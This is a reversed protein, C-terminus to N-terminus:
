ASPVFGEFLLADGDDRAPDVPRPPSPQFSMKKETFEKEFHCTDLKDALDPRWPASLEGRLLKEWHIGNFFAHSKVDEGDASGSGLRRSPNKTLLGEILYQADLSVDGSYVVHGHRIMEFMREHCHSYFPPLSTLMEYLLVGLSWWDVAKGHGRSDIIEPALYEPTGCFTNAGSSSNSVGDKSLGFDTLRIHGQADLLLNEPKLDRYIVDLSHLYSIALIIEAAYFRAREESLKRLKGLHFFLDGGPCFDLVLYLNDKSQFASRMGVIFPHKFSELIRCELGISQVQNRKILSEKKLVKLACLEGSSIEISLYVKGFSGIGILKHMEFSDVSPVISNFPPDIKACAGAMTPFHAQMNDRTINNTSVVDPQVFDESERVAQLTWPEEACVGVVASREVAPVNDNVVEKRGPLPARQLTVCGLSAALPGHAFNTWPVEKYQDAADHAASSRFFDCFRPAHRAEDSRLVTSLWTRVQQVTSVVGHAPPPCPPLDPDAQGLPGLEEHHRVVMWCDDGPRSLRLTYALTDRWPGCNILHVDYVLCEPVASTTATSGKAAASKHAETGTGDMETLQQTNRQTESREDQIEQLPSRQLKDNDRSRPDSPHCKAEMPGGGTNTIDDEASQSTVSPECSHNIPSISSEEKEEKEKASQSERWLKELTTTTACSHGPFELKWLEHLLNVRSQLSAQLFTTTVGQQQIQQWVQQCAQLEAQFYQVEPCASHLVLIHHIKGQYSQLTSGEDVVGRDDQPKSRRPSELSSEDQRCGFDLLVPEASTKSPCPSLLCEWSDYSAITCHSSNSSSSGSRITTPTLGSDEQQQQKHNPPSYLSTVQKLVKPHNGSSEVVVGQRQVSLNREKEEREPLWECGDNHEVFTLCQWFHM